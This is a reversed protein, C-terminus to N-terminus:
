LTYRVTLGIRRGDGYVLDLPRPSVPYFAPGRSGVSRAYLEDTLNTGWLQLMWPGQTWSIRASLLSREGFHAGNIARDYVDNQYSADFGARLRWDNVSAPTLDATLNL